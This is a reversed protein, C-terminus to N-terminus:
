SPMNGRAGNMMVSVSSKYQPSSNALGAGNMKISVNSKYQSSPKSSSALTAGKKM